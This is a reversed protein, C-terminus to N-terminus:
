QGTLSNNRSYIKGNAHRWNRADNRYSLNWQTKVTKDWEHLVFLTDEVTADVLMEDFVTKTLNGPGTTSQIEPLENLLKNELSLLAKNLASGVVAHGKKAILPNNNFYFIWNDNNAGPKTFICPPVMSHSSIDYCLPQIKLRPDEFHQCISIGSYEDDVDIYCGGEIFIYCLRFFDSQMAPHYCKDFASKYRIGLQSLIYDGAQQTDFIQYNFGLEKIAEWTETCARVDSPLNDFDDWFQIIKKPIVNNSTTLRSFPQTLSRQIFERIFNSRTRYDEEELSRKIM